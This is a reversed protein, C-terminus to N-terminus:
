PQSGSWQGTTADREYRYIQNGQHDFLTLADIREEGVVAPLKRSGTGNLIDTFEDFANGNPKTQGNSLHITRDGNADTVVTAGSRGLNGDPPPWDAVIAGERAGVTHMSSPVQPYSQSDIIKDAAHRVAHRWTSVSHEDSDPHYVEVNVPAPSQPNVIVDFTTMGNGTVPNNQAHADNGVQVEASPDSASLGNAVTVEAVDDRLNNEIQPNPTATSKTSFDIWDDVGDIQPNLAADAIAQTM